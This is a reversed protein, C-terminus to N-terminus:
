KWKQAIDSNQTVFKSYGIEEGKQLKAVKVGCFSITFCMKKELYNASIDTLRGPLFYESEDIISEPARPADEPSFDSDKNTTNFLWVHASVGTDAKWLYAYAVSCDIELILSHTGSFGIRWEGKELM